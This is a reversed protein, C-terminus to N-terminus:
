VGKKRKAAPHIQRPAILLPLTQPLAVVNGLFPFSLQIKFIVEGAIRGVKLADARDVKLMLHLFGKDRVGHRDDDGTRQRIHAVTQLRNM